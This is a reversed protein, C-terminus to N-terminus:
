VRHFEDGYRLTTCCFGWSGDLRSVTQSRCGGDLWDDSYQVGRKEVQAGPGDVWGPSSECSSSVYNSLYSVCGKAYVRVGIMWLEADGIALAAGPM